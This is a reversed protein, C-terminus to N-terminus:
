ARRGWESLAADNDAGLPRAPGAPTRAVPLATDLGATAAAATWEQWRRRLDGADSPLSFRICHAVVDRLAVSLLHGGGGQYSSWAALAGHLGALPDAIADGCFLPLGTVELLLASLGAAVGADDGFAVHHEGPGDRGYGSLSLWTRGPRAALWTEAHVGLQRLARPRSAEIVIDAGNLLEHLRRLEGSGFDLAVSRKGANMLDFFPAPGARAGDPRGVSEVKVVEAGLAQLLHSCLPGAWLASLDVVRPPHRRAGPAARRGSATVTYWPAPKPLASVAAALGLLQAREVLVAAPRGTVLAEIAEWSTATETELWAPVASWDAERTMSLAFWGDAARLLHCSGGPSIAGNRGLGGIAAREGLLAAGDPLARAPTAGSLCRLAEIVGDACSALPVPCMQPPGDPLGTLASLGSRANALAPDPDAPGPEAVVRAGLSELLARAYDTAVGHGALHLM